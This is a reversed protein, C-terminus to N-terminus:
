PRAPGEVHHAVHALPYGIPHRERRPARVPSAEAIVEHAQGARARGRVTGACQHTAPEEEAVSEIAREDDEAGRRRVERLFEEAKTAGALGQDGSNERM